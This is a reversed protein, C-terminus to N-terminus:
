DPQRMRRLGAPMAATLVDRPIPKNTFLKAQLEMQALVLEQVTVVPCDRLAAERL